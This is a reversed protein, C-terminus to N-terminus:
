SRKRARREELALNLNIGLSEYDEERRTRWRLFQAAQGAALKKGPQDENSHDLLGLRPEGTSTKFGPTALVTSTAGSYELYYSGIDLLQLDWTEAKLVFEYTVRIYHLDATGVTTSKQVHSTGRISRLWAQRAQLGSWGQSNVTNEYKVKNAVTLSAQNRTFRIVPRSEQQTPPPDFPEGASTVIGEGWRPNANQSSNTPDQSQPSPQTADFTTQARGPLPQEYTESDLEIDPPETFPNDRREYESDYEVAVDWVLRSAERQVAIINRVVAGFDTPYPEYPQPLGGEARVVEHETTQASSTLVVFNRVYLRRDIQGRAARRGPAIESVSLIAM